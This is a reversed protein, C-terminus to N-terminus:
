QTTQTWAGSTALVKIKELYLGQWPNKERKLFFVPLYRSIRNEYIGSIGALIGTFVSRSKDFSTRFQDL